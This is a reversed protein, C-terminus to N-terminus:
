WQDKNCFYLIAGNNKGYEAESKYLSLPIIQSRNNFILVPLRYHNGIRINAADIADMLTNQNFRKKFEYISRFNSIRKSIRVPIRSYEIQQIKM